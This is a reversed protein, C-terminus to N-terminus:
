ELWANIQLLDDANLSGAARKLNLTDLLYDYRAQSLDRQSEFVTRLTLLVDVSTRTGVEFGAETAEAAIEASEVARQFANVRSVGAVVNHFADRTDRTTERRIRENAELTARHLYESEKTQYYARGGSFIPITLELGVLSNEVERTGTIGGTDSDSYTAIFELSPHHQARNISIDQQAIRTDYESILIALNNDHATNIWERVDNPEPSALVLEDSLDTFDDIREGTIVALADLSLELQIQADIERAAALDYSAQAEKVDTIPILGVEFRKEAQELQRYIAQKESTAFSLNDQAALVNFYAESARIIVDQKAADFEVKARAVTNKAQRLQVFFAQNYLAQTMRISYGHTNFDVSASGVGFTVGETDLSTDNTEATLSVQPLLAARAIPSSQLAANYTAEAERLQADRTKALAYIDILGQACATSALQSALLLILISKCNILKSM